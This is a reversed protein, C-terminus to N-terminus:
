LSVDLEHHPMTMSAFDHELQHHPMTMSAFDHELMPRGANGELVATATSPGFLFAFTVSQADPTGFLSQLLASSDSRVRLVHSHNGKNELICLVRMGDPAVFACGFSPQNSDPSQIIVCGRKEDLKLEGTASRVISKRCERSMKSWLFQFATDNGLRNPTRKHHSGFFVLPCPQLMATAPITVPQCTISIDETANDEDSQIFTNGGIEDDVSVWKRTISEKEMDRFTISALLSIHDAKCNEFSTEWTISDGGKIENKYVASAVSNSETDHGHSTRLVLKIGNRIPVPTINYLRLSVTLTAEESFDGRRIVRRLDYTMTLSVPDSCGTLAVPESGVFTGNLSEQRITPAPIMVPLDRPRRYMEIVSHQFSNCLRHPNIRQHVNKPPGATNAPFSITSVESAIGVARSVVLRAHHCLFFSEQHMPELQSVISSPLEKIFTLDNFSAKKEQKTVKNFGTVSMQLMNELSIKGKSGERSSLFPSPELLSAIDDHRSNMKANAPSSEVIRAITDNADMAVQQYLSLVMVDRGANASSNLAEKSTEIFAHLISVTLPGMKDELVEVDGESSKSEIYWLIVSMKAVVELSAMCVRFLHVTANFYSSPDSKILSTLIGISGNQAGHSELLINMETQVLAILSSAVELQGENSQKTDHNVICRGLWADVLIAAMVINGSSQSGVSENVMPYATRAKSWLVLMNQCIKTLASSVCPMQRGPGGVVSLNWRNSATSASSAVGDNAHHDVLLMSSLMNERLSLGVPPSLGSKKLLSTMLDMYAAYAAHSFPSLTIPRCVFKGFHDLLVLAVNSWEVLYSYDKSFAHNRQRGLQLLASCFVWILEDVPRFIRQNKKQQTDWISSLHHSQLVHNMLTARIGLVKEKDNENNIGALNSQEILEEKFQDIHGQGDIMILTAVETLLGVRGLRYANTGDQISALPIDVRKESVEVGMPLFLMIARLASILGAAREQLPIGRLAILVLAVSVEISESPMVALSLTSGITEVTNKESSILTTEENLIEILIAAACSSVNGCCVLPSANTLRIAAVAAARKLEKHSLCGLLVDMYERVLSVTDTEFWGRKAHTAKSNMAARRAPITEGGETLASVFVATIVPLVQGLHHPKYLVMRSLLKSMKPFIVHNFVKFQIEKTTDTYSKSNYILSQPDGNEL